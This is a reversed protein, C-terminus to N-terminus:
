INGTRMMRVKEQLDKKLDVKWASFLAVIEKYLFENLELYVESKYQQIRMEEAIKRYFILPDKGTPFLATLPEYNLVHEDMEPLENRSVYPPNSVIIDFQNLDMHDKLIDLVDLEITLGMDHANKGAVEVAEQSIDIAKINWLPRKHALTLAICGSGVGIDLLNLTTEEDHLELIWEVLEETEPRPILVHENVHFVLDFFFAKGTVYQIPLGSRVEHVIKSLKKELTETWEHHRHNSFVDEVLIRIIHKLERDSYLDGLKESLHM